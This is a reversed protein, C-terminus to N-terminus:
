ESRLHADQLARHEFQLRQDDVVGVLLCIVSKGLPNGLSFAMSKRLLRPGKMRLSQIPAASSTDPGVLVLNVETSSASNSRPSFFIPHLYVRSRMLSRPSVRFKKKDSLFPVSILFLYLFRIRFFVESLLMLFQFARCYAGSVSRSCILTWFPRVHNPSSFQTLIALYKM